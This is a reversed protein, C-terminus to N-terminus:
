PSTAVCLLYRGNVSMQRIPLDIDVINYNVTRINNKVSRDPELCGILVDNDQNLIPIVGLFAEQIKGAWTHIAYANETTPEILDTLLIQFEVKYWEYGNSGENVIPGNVRLVASDKQFVKDIPNNIGEVFYEIKLGDVIPQFYQALSAVINRPLNPDM